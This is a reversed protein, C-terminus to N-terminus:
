QTLFERLITTLTLEKVGMQLDIVPGAALFRRGMMSPSKPYGQLQLLV